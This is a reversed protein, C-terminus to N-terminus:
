VGTRTGNIEALFTLGDRASGHVPEHRVHIRVNPQVRAAQLAGAVGFRWEVPLALVAADYGRDVFASRGVAHVFLAQDGVQEVQSLGFYGAARGSSLRGM